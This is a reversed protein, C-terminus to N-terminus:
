PEVTICGDAVRVRADCLDQVEPIQSVLLVREAGIIRAARRIMAVYVRTNAPSLAADPEDRVLLPRETGARRCALETIALALAEGVLTREGGSLSEARGQRGREGDLVLVEMGDLQRKGDASTKSAEVSVTWRPGVCTHLLDNTLQTLEPAAADIELAQLGDRGLDLALRTWDEHDRRAAALEGELELLRAEGAIARARADEARWLRQEAANREDVAAVLAQELAPIDTRRAHAPGAAELEESCREAATSADVHERTLTDIAARLEQARGDAVSLEPLRAAAVSLGAREDVLAMRRATENALAADAIREKERAALLAVEAAQWPVRASQVEAALEAVREAAKLRQERQVRFGAFHAARSVADNHAVELDAIEKALSDITAPAASIREEARDDRALTSRAIAETSGLTETLIISSLGDRLGVIRDKSGTLLERNASALRTRTDALRERAMNAAVEANACAEDAVDCQKDTPFRGLATQAKALEMEARELAGRCARAKTYELEVVGRVRAHDRDAVPPAALLEAIEASRKAAARIVDAGALTDEEARLRRHADLLDREVRALYTRAQEARLVVGGRQANHEAAAADAIRAQDFEGALAVARARTADVARHAESMEEDTPAVGARAREDAVAHEAVAVAQAAVGVADGARKAAREIRELGIARLLVAKRDSAPLRLFGGAGQASFTGAFTVESPPMTRKSWTDFDRVLTSKYAPEGGDVFVVATSARAVADANHRVRYAHGNHEIEVELYSDRATAIDIMSERTVMKRYAGGAVLLELMTTKGAGNEGTVAILDGDVDRLDLEAHAFPGLAHINLHNFRM